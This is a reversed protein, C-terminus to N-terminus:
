QESGHSHCGTFQAPIGSTPTVSMSMQVEEGSGDICYVDAGHNHCGTVSATHSAATSSTTAAATNPATQAQAGLVALALLFATIMVNVPLGLGGGM